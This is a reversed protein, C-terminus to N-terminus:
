ATWRYSDTSEPKSRWVVSSGWSHATIQKRQERTFEELGQGVERAWALVAEMLRRKEAGSAIIPQAKSLLPSLCPEIRVVLLGYRAGSELSQVVRKPSGQQTRLARRLGLRRTM